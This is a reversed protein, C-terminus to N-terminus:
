YIDRLVKEREKERERERDREGGGFHIVPKFVYSSIMFSYSTM